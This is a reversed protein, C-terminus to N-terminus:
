SRSDCLVELDSRSWYQTAGRAQVLAPVVVKARKSRLVDETLVRKSDKNYKTRGNLLQLRATIVANSRNGVQTSVLDNIYRQKGGVALPVTDTAEDLMRCLNMFKANTRDSHQWVVDLIADAERDSLLLVSQDPLMVLVDVHRMSLDSYGMVTEFFHETCFIGKADPINWKVSGLDNIHSRSQLATALDEVAVHCKLEEISSVTAIANYEWAPEAVAEPKSIEREAEEEIQEEQQIERECEEGRRTAVVSIDSGFEHGRQCINRCVDNGRDGITVAGGAHAICASANVEVIEALSKTSCSGQYLDTLDWNEYIVAADSQEVTSGYYLGQKAWEALGRSTADSTNRMIWQLVDTVTLVKPRQQKSSGRGICSEVEPPCLLHLTQGQGLKRLRGAGQMFKDKLLAPGLTLAAVAHQDLKMDSGRTRADDFLVFAQDDRIPSRHRSISRRTARDLVMWEGQSGKPTGFYLVGSFKAPFADCALLYLAADVNTVGALLSGTDILADLDNQIVYDLVSHWLPMAHAGQPKADLASHGAVTAHDLLLQLMLGNTGQLSDISPEYQRVMLPLLRHTDNTGSFGLAHGGPLHWASQVVKAPYQTTENEVVFANLWFNVAEVSMHYIDYLMDRQVENTPDLKREDDISAKQEASLHAQVPELWLAYHHAQASPALRILQCVAQQLQQRTLGSHYYSLCTLMLCVDPHSFESRESPVDAARYPVAVRSRKSRENVGYDVRHRQEICHEFVGLALLGRLALLQQWHKELVLEDREVICNLTRDSCLIGERIRQRTATEQESLWRLEYPPNDLLTDVLARRLRERARMQDPDNEVTKPLLRICQYAGPPADMREILGFGPDSLVATIASVDRDNLVRLIAQIVSTRLGAQPLGGPAGIAYILQYKHSLIVDSEDMVNIGDRESVALLRKLGDVKQKVVSCKDPSSESPTDLALQAVDYRLEHWKLQLSLRHEVAILQVRAHDVCRNWQENLVAVQMPTLHVDRHFPQVCFQVNLASATMSRHLFECAESILSHLFHVRLVSKDHYHGSLWSMILMPLIVRTKGLGMNLQCIANANDLLHRAMSYQHPRIQIGQEFEFALWRPHDATAWARVCRLEQVLMANGTSSQQLSDIHSLRVIRTLKDELVCLEMYLRIAMQLQMREDAGLFPNFHSMISDDILMRVIDSLTATPFRNAQLLLQVTTSQRAAEVNLPQMMSHELNARTIRVEKLMSSSESAMYESSLRWVETSHHQTWSQRLEGLTSRVLENEAEDLDRQLPFAPVANLEMEARTRMPRAFLALSMEFRAVDDHNKLHVSLRDRHSTSFAPSSQVAAARLQALLRQSSTAFFSHATRECRASMSSESLSLLRRVDNDPVESRLKQMYDIQADRVLQPGVVDVAMPEDGADGSHLFSFRQSSFSIHQCMVLLASVSDCFEVINGLCKRETDDLPRNTWCQRLLDIAAEAGSMKLTRDPMLTSSAAFIAALHLRSVISPAKLLQLRENWEYVFTDIVDHPAESLEVRIEDELCQSVKFPSSGSARIVRGAATGPVLIKLRPLASDEGCRQLVLYHTFHPLLSEIRQQVALYYGRHEESVLRQGGDVGKEATTAMTFSLSFRPLHVRLLQHGPDRLAHIFAKQEMKLLAGGISRPVQVFADFQVRREYLVELAHKTDHPPIEYCEAQATGSISGLCVLYQVSRETFSLPRFAVANLLRSHWHSHMEKLRHPVNSTWKNQATEPRVRTLDVLELASVSKRDNEAVERIIVPATSSAVSFEYYHKNIASITRFKSRDRSGGVEFDRSGFSRRYLADQLISKPLRGPPTANKLVCGDIVNLMFIDQGDTTTAEFCYTSARSQELLVDVQTWLLDSPADNFVTQLAPTLIGEPRQLIAPMLDNVCRSMVHLCPPVLGMMLQRLEVDATQLGFVLGNHFQVVIACIDAADKPDFAHMSSYCLLAYGFMVCQKARLQASIGHVVSKRTIQEGVGNAWEVAIDVYARILERSQAPPLWQSVFAALESLVVISPALRPTPKLEAARVLLDQRMVQLCGHEFLDRRWCFFPVADVSLDGLQFVSQRVLTRVAADGFPLSGEHLANSVKRFQQNPFSRLSGFAIFSRKDFQDPRNSDEAFVLNGRLLGSMQDAPPPFAVTWNLSSKLERPLAETFFTKTWSSTVAFPNHGKEKAIASEFLPFWICQSSQSIDDIHKPGVWSPRDFGVPYFFVERLPLQRAQESFENYHTSWSIKWKVITLEYGKNFAEVNIPCNDPFPHRPKLMEQARFSFRAVRELDTPMLLHFIVPLARQEDSPLPNFVCPPAKQVQTLEYELSSCRNVWYNRSTEATQEAESHRKASDYESRYRAIERQIESIQVKLKAAEVRKLDLEAVHKRERAAANNQELSWQAMMESCQKAFNCAFCMTGSSVYDRLSFVTRSPDNEFRRIYTAVHVVADCARKDDTLVVRLDASRMAIGYDKLLPHDLTAERHMICCATWLVVLEHSRHQVFLRENSATDHLRSLLVTQYQTVVKELAAMETEGFKTVSTADSLLPSADFLYREVCNILLLSAHSSPFSAQGYIEIRQTWQLLESFSVRSKAAHDCLSNSSPFWGIESLARARVDDLGTSPTVATPDDVGVASGCQSMQLNEFSHSSINSPVQFQEAVRSSLDDAACDLRRRYETIRAAVASLDYGRKELDIAQLVAADLVTFVCNISKLSLAHKDFAGKDTAPLMDDLHSLHLQLLMKSYLDENCLFEKLAFLVLPSHTARKDEDVATTGGRPVVSVVKDMKDLNIADDDQSISNLVQEILCHMFSPTKKHVRKGNASARKLLQNLCMSFLGSMMCKLMEGCSMLSYSRATGTLVRRGFDDTATLSGDLKWDDLALVDLQVTDVSVSDYLLVCGYDPFWSSANCFRAMGDDGALGSCAARVQHLEQSSFTQVAAATDPPDGESLANHKELHDVLRKLLVVVDHISGDVQDSCPPFFPPGYLSNYTKSMQGM